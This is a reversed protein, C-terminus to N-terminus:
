LMQLDESWMPSFWGLWEDPYPSKEGGTITSVFTTQPLFFFIQKVVMGLLLWSFHSMFWPGFTNGCLATKIPINKPQYFFPHSENISVPKFYLKCFVSEQRSDDSNPELMGTVRLLYATYIIPPNFYM